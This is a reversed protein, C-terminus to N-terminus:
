AGTGIRCDCLYWQGPPSKINKHHIPVPPPLSGQSPPLCTAVWKTEIEYLSNWDAWRPKKTHLSTDKVYARIRTKARWIIFESLRHDRHRLQVSLLSAALLGRIDRERLRETLFEAGM